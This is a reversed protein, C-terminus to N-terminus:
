QDTGLRIKCANSACRWACVSYFRDAAGNSAGSFIKKYDVRRWSESLLKDPVHKSSSAKICSLSKCGILGPCVARCAVFPPFHLPNRARVPSVSNCLPLREPHLPINAPLLAVGKSIWLNLVELSHSPVGGPELATKRAASAATNDLSARPPGVQPPAQAGKGKLDCGCKAQM